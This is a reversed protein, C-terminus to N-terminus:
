APPGRRRRSLDFVILGALGMAAFMFAMARFWVDSERVGLVLFTAIFVVRLPATLRTLWTAYWSDRRPPEMTWNVLRAALGFGVPVILIGVLGDVIDRVLHDPDFRWALAGIGSTAVLLDILIAKPINAERQPASSEVLVTVITVLLGFGGLYTAILGWVVALVDLLGQENM